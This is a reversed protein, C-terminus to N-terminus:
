SCHIVNFYKLVNVLCPFLLLVFSSLYFSLGSALCLCAIRRVVTALHFDAKNFDHLLSCVSFSKHISLTVPIALGFPLYHCSPLSSILVYRKVLKYVKHSTIEKYEARSGPEMALFIYDLMKEKDLSVNINLPIKVKNKYRISCLKSPRITVHQYTM